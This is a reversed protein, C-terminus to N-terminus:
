GGGGVAGEEEAAAQEDFMTRIREALQQNADSLQAQDLSQGSSDLAGSSVAAAMAQPNLEFMFKSGREDNEDLPEAGLKERAENLMYVGGQFGKV